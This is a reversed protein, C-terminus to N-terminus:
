SCCVRRVYALLPCGVKIRQQKARLAMIGLEAESVHLESRPTGPVLRTELWRPSESAHSAASSPLITPVISSGDASAVAAM